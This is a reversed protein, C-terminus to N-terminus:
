NMGEDLIINKLWKHGKDRNMAKHWILFIPLSPLSLPLPFVNLKNEYMFFDAMQKPVIAIGDTQMVTTPVAIYQNVKALIKRTGGQKEMFQELLESRDQGFTMVIHKENFFEKTSITNVIRPHDKRAIVMIEEQRFPCFDLRADQPPIFDFCFDIEAEKTLELGTEQQDLHSHITIQTDVENIKNLLSPLLKLEGYRGFAIKFARKSAAPDFEQGTDFTDSIKALVERIPEAIELARVTPKM